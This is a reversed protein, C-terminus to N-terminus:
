PHIVLDIIRALDESDYYEIEIVGGAGKARLKVATGLNTQLDERLAEMEPDNAPLAPTRPARKARRPAGDSHTRVRRELERVSHGAEVAEAALRSLADKDDSLGL